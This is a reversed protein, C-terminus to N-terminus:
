YNHILIKTSKKFDNIYDYICSYNKKSLIAQRVNHKIHPQLRCGHKKLHIHKYCTKSIDQRYRQIYVWDCDFYGKYENTIVGLHMNKVRKSSKYAYKKSMYISLFRNLIPIM